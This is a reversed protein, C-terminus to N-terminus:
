YPIAEPYFSRIVKIFKSVAPPRHTTRKWVLLHNIEVPEEIPILAVDRLQQALSESIIAGGHGNKLTSEIISSQASYLFINPTIGM